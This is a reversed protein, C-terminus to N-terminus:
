FSGLWFILKRKERKNRRGGNCVIQEARAICKISPALGCRDTLECDSCSFDTRHHVKSVIRDAGTIIARFIPLRRM